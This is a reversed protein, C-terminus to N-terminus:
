SETPLEHVTNVLMRINEEPTMPPIACGAGIVLRPNQKYTDALALVERKVDQPTGLAIVGSPDITGFLAAKDGFHEYIKDLPTKYDLEVADLGMGAMDPLILNTDGCIHLLYPVGMRHAEKLLEVEGEYAFRKYMDPSIMDPGAPSDGNSVMDVEAEAMLRILQLSIQTTYRILQKSREEDMLLDMMFNEPGRMCCALSFPAQDCNGRLFKEKGFYKRLLRMTELSHQIRPHQSIDTVELSDIDEMAPLHPTCVRAPDNEPFDVPCGIADALLATDVDFLIGDVDYKETFQIHCKAAVESDERYAKMSYGAEKVALMFNHLMVPRKDPMNGELVAKIREYGNM